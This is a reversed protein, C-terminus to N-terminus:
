TDGLTSGHELDPVQVGAGVADVDQASQVERHLCTFHVGDHSGVPRALAREGVHQGAAGPVHGGLPRDKVLALVQQREARLLARTLSFDFTTSMSSASTFRGTFSPNEPPSFFRLSIKWIAIRSGARAMRSSVSEPRSM